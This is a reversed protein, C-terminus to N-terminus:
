DFVAKDFFRQKVSKALIKFDQELSYNYVYKLDWFLKRKKGEKRSATLNELKALGTLGPKVKLRMQYNDYKRCLQEVAHYTEPEPGVLSMDGKLVNVLQPLKDLSTKRLFRSMWYLYPKNQYFDFSLENSNPETVITRFRYLLIFPNGLYNDRRRDKQRSDYKFRIARLKRRGKRRRDQGVVLHKEFVPGGTTAKIFLSILLILPLTLILGVGALLIDLFRKGWATKNKVLWEPEDQITASSGAFLNNPNPFFSLQEDLKRSNTVLLDSQQMLLKDNEWDEQNIFSWGMAGGGDKAPKIRLVDALIFKKLNSIKFFYGRKTLKYVTDLKNNNM